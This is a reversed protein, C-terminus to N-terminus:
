QEVLHGTWTSTGLHNECTTANTQLTPRGDPTAAPVPLFALPCIPLTGYPEYPPECSPDGNWPLIFHATLGM